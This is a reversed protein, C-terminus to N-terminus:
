SHQEDLQEHEKKKEYTEMYERTLRIYHTTRTRKSLSGSREPKRDDEQKRQKKVRTLCKKALDAKAKEPGKKQFARGIERVVEGESVLNLASRFVWINSFDM